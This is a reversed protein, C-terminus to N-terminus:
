IKRRRGAIVAIVAFAALYAILILLNTVANNMDGGIFSSNFIVRTGANLPTPIRNFIEQLTEGFGILAGGLIAMSFIIIHGIAEAMKKTKAFLAINIYM